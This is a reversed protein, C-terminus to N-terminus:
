GVTASKWKTGLCVVQGLDNCKKGLSLLQLLQQFELLVVVGSHQRPPTCFFEEQFQKVNWVKFSPCLAAEGFASKIRNAFLDEM